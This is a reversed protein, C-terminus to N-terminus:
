WRLERLKSVDLSGYVKFLNLMVALMVALACAEIAILIIVAAVGLADIGAPSLAFAMININGSHFILELAMVLRIMERRVLLGYLGIALLIVSTGLFVSLPAHM